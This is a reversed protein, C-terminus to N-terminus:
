NGRNKQLISNMRKSRPQSTETPKPPDKVLQDISRRALVEQGKSGEIGLSLEILPMMILWIIM